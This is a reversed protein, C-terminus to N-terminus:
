VLESRVLEREQSASIYFPFSEVVGGPVSKQYRVWERWASRDTFILSSGRTAYRFGGAVDFLLPNGQNEVWIAVHNNLKVSLYDSKAIMVIVLGRRNETNTKFWKNIPFVEGGLPSM